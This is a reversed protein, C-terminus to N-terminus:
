GSFMCNGMRRTKEQPCSFSACFNLIEAVAGVSVQFVPENGARCTYAPYPDRMKSKVQEQYEDSQSATKNRNRTWEEKAGIQGM